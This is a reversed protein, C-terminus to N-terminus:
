RRVVHPTPIPRGVRVTETFWDDNGSRWSVQVAVDPRGSDGANGPGRHPAEVGLSAQRNSWQDVRFSVYCPPESSALMCDLHCPPVTRTRGVVQDCATVSVDYATDDGINLSTPM